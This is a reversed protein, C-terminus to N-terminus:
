EIYNLTQWRYKQLEISYHLFNEYFRGRHINGTNYMNVPDDELVFMQLVKHVLM